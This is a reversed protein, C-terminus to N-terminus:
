AAQTSQTSQAVALRVLSMNTVTAQHLLNIYVLIIIQNLGPKLWVSYM